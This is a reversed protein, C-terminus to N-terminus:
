SRVGMLTNLVRVIQGVAERVRDRDTISVRQMVRGEFKDPHFRLMTERLKDKRVKDESKDADAALRVSKSTLVTLFKSISEETFDEIRHTHYTTNGGVAPSFSPFHPWPIDMFTLPDM